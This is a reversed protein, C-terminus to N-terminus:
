TNSSGDRITNSSGDKITNSSGDKITRVSGDGLAGGKVTKQETKNLTAISKELKGIKIRSRQLKQKTM